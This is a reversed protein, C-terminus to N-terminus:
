EPPSECGLRPTQPAPAGLILRPTQPVAAGWPHLGTQSLRSALALLTMATTKSTSPARVTQWLRRAVQAVSCRGNDQLPERVDVAALGSRPALCFRM